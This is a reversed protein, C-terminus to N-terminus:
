RGKRIKAIDDGSIIDTLFSRAAVLRVVYIPAPRHVQQM